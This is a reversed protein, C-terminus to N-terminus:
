ASWTERDAALCAALDEGKGAIGLPGFCKHSRALPCIKVQHLTITKGPTRAKVHGPFGNGCIQIADGRLADHERVHCSVHQRAAMFDLIWADDTSFIAKNDIDSM